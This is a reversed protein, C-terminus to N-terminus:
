AALAADCAAAWLRYRMWFTHHSPYRYHEWYPLEALRRRRWEMYAHVTFPEGIADFAERIAGQMTEDSVRRPSRQRPPRPHSSTARGGLPQLGAWVLCSDWESGFRRNITNYSPIARPQGAALTEKYILLRHRIYERVRPSRGIRAAVERIGDRIADDSTRYEARRLGITSVIGHAADGPILEAARLAEFFNGFRNQFVAFSRPRRGPRRDIDPRGVWARYQPWTPVHGLDIRCERLAAIVEEDSYHPGQQFVIVDGDPRPELHARRLAANWSGAGLWRRVSTDDPWGKTRYRKYLERYESVSPSHGLEAAALQLVTIAHAERTAETGAVSIDEALLKRQLERLVALQSAEDLSTIARYVPDAAPDSFRQGDQPPM